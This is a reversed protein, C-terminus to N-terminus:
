VPVSLMGVDLSDGGYEDLRKKERNNNDLQRCYMKIDNSLNCQKTNWIEMFKHNWDNYEWIAKQLTKGGIKDKWIKAENNDIINKNMKGGERSTPLTIRTTSSVFYVLLRMVQPLKIM